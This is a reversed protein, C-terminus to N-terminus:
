ARFYKCERLRAIADEKFDDFQDPNKEPKEGNYAEEYMDETYVDEAIESFPKQITDAPNQANERAVSVKVIREIRLASDTKATDDLTRASAVDRFTGQASEFSYASASRVNITLAFILVGVTAAPKRMDQPLGRVFGFFSNAANVALTGGIKAYEAVVESLRRGGTIKTVDTTSLVGEAGLGRLTVGVEEVKLATEQSLGSASATTSSRLTTSPEPSFRAFREAMTKDVQQTLLLFESRLGRTSIERFLEEELKKREASLQTYRASGSDLAALQRGIADIKGKYLTYQARAEVLKAETAREAPRQAFLPTLGLSTFTFAILSLVSITKKM